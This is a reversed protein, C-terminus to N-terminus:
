VPPCWAVSDKTGHYEWEKGAAQLVILYGPTIVQIYMVGRKPCGLSADNWQVAEASKVQIADPSVSARAALDAKADSILKVLTADAAPTQSDPTSIPEVTSSPKPNTPIVVVTPAVVPQTTSTPSAQTAGGCGIFLGALLGVLM